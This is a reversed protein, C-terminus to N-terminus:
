STPTSPGAATPEVRRRSRLDVIAIVLAVAVLAITVLM